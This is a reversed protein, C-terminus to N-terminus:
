GGQEKQADKNIFAAVRENVKSDDHRYLRFNRMNENENDLM